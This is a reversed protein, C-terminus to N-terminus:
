SANAIVKTEILSPLQAAAKCLAVGLVPDIKERLLGYWRFRSLFGAALAAVHGNGGRGFGTSEDGCDFSRLEAPDASRRPVLQARGALHRRGHPEPSPHQPSNILKAVPGFSVTRRQVLPLAKAALLPFRTISLHL